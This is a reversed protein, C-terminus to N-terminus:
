EDVRMEESAMVCGLTLVAKVADGLNILRPVFSDSLRQLAPGVVFRFVNMANALLLKEFEVVLVSEVVSSEILVSKIFISDIIHVNIFVPLSRDIRNAAIRCATDHTVANEAIDRAVRL